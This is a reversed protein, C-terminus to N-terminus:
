LTAEFEDLELNFEDDRTIVKKSRLVERTLLWYVLALSRRGKNNAPIALDVYKLDNNADCLAVVPIGINVAERLAQQDASPDTVVIVDPEFFTPLLPNTLTGPVFRGVMSKAGINKAFLRAPKQGYQRQCVVLIREPDFKSMFDAAVRVREDTSKIDLVYLGDNRVKFIFRRMDASKQQTGIHVGSTLYLDEAVLLSQETATEDDM